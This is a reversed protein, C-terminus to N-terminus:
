NQFQIFLAQLKVHAFRSVPSSAHYKTIRVEYKRGRWKERKSLWKKRQGGILAHTKIPHQANSQRLKAATPPRIGESNLGPRKGCIEEKKSGVEEKM